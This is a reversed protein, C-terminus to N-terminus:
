ILVNQIKGAALLQNAFIIADERESPSFLFMGANMRNIHLMALFYGAAEILHRKYNESMKYKFRIDRALDLTNIGLVKMIEIMSAFDEYNDNIGPIIIYKLLVQEPQSCNLYYKVLNSTVEDFNDFGKIKRWTKATGADISFNIKSQINSKLSFGIREDYLFCNTFFIAPKNKVLDLIKDKYPHITIEGSSIQWVANSAILDKELAYDIADFMVQYADVDAENYFNRQEKGYVECYICSCQCPAPYMSLNVYRILKNNVWDGLQYNGCKTCGNSLLQQANNNLGEFIIRTRMQIFEDITDKGTRGLAIAPRNELEECCLAVVKCKSDLRGNFNLFFNEIMSCSKYKLKSSYIGAQMQCISEDQNSM